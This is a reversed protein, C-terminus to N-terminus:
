LTIEKFLENINSNIDDRMFDNDYYKIGRYLTVIKGGFGRKFFSIDLDKKSPNDFIQKGFQQQGFELTEFKRRQFYSIAAWLITHTLPINTEYDPDNSAHGYYVKKNFYVFYNFAIFRNKEKLGILIAQNNRIMEFQVKWTEDPRTIRGSAKYHLKRHILFNNYDPNTFDIIEIQYKKKGNNILSKYSKRINCWIDEKNIGLELLCSNNSSDLYGFKMLMNFNQTGSLPDLMFMAKGVDYVKALEDIKNFCKKKVKERYKEHLTENFIPARLYGGAYSFYRNSEHQELFLPCICLPKDNQIIVFSLDRLRYNLSYYKCFEMENQLYAYTSCNNDSLFKNWYKHFNPSTSTIFDM